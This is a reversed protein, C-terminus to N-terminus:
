EARSRIVRPLGQLFVAVGQVRHHLRASEQPLKRTGHSAIAGGGLVATRVRVAVCGCGSHRGPVLPEGM